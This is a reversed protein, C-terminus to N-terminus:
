TQMKFVAASLSLAKEEVYTDTHRSRRRVIEKRM